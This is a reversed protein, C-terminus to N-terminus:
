RAPRSTATSALNSKVFARLVRLEGFGIAAPVAMAVDEGRPDRARDASLRGGSACRRRFRRVTRWNRVSCERLVHCERRRADLRLNPHSRNIGAFGEMAQRDRLNHRHSARKFWAIERCGTTCRGPGRVRRHQQRIRQRTHHGSVFGPTALFCGGDVGVPKGCRAKPPEVFGEKEPSDLM